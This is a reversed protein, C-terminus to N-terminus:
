AVMQQIRQVAAFFGEKGKTQDNEDPAWNFEGANLKILRPQQVKDELSLQNLVETPLLQQDQLREYWYQVHTQVYQHPIGEEEPRGRGNIRQMLLEIDEVFTVLVTEPLVGLELILQWAQKFEQCYCQWDEASMVPMEGDTCLHNLWAYMFHGWPPMEWIIVAEPHQQKLQSIQKAQEVSTDLFLKQVELVHPNPKVGQGLADYFQKLKSNDSVPLEEFVYYGERSFQTKLSTKGSGMPGVLGYIGEKLKSM